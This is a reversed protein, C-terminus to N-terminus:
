QRPVWGLPFPKWMQDGRRPRFAGDEQANQSNRWHTPCFPLSQGAKNMRMELPTECSSCCLIENTELDVILDRARGEFKVEEHKLREVVDQPGRTFERTVERQCIDCKSHSSYLLVGKREADKDSKPSGGTREMEIHCNPCIVPDALTIIQEVPVDQEEVFTELHKSESM